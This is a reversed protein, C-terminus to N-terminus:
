CRWKDAGKRFDKSGIPALVVRIIRLTSLRLRSLRMGWNIARKGVPSARRDNRTGGGNYTRPQGVESKRAPSGPISEFSPEIPVRDERDRGYIIVEEDAPVGDLGYREWDEIIHIPM